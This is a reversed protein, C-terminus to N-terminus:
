ALDGVSVKNGMKATVNPFSSGYLRLCTKVSLGQIILLAYHRIDITNHVNPKLVLNM